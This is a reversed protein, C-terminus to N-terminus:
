STVVRIASTGLYSIVEQHESYFAPLPACHGLTLVKRVMADNRVVSKCRAIIDGISETTSGALYLVAAMEVEEVSPCEGVIYSCAIVAHDIINFSKIGTAPLKLRNLFDEGKDRHLFNDHPDDGGAGSGAFLWVVPKGHTENWTMPGLLKQLPWPVERYSDIEDLFSIVHTKKGLEIDVDKIFDQLQSENLDSLTRHFYKIEINHISAFDGALYKGLEDCYHTKGSRSPAWLLYNNKSKWQKRDIFITKIDDALLNLSRRTAADYRVYSGIIRYDDLVIKEAHKFFAILTEEESKGAEDSEAGTLLVAPLQAELLPPEFTFEEIDDNAYRKVGLRSFMRDQRFIDEVANAWHQALFRWNETRGALAYRRTEGSDDEAVFPYMMPRFITVSDENLISNGETYFVLVNEANKDHTLFTNIFGTFVKSESHADCVEEMTAFMFKNIDSDLLDRFRYKYSPENRFQMLRDASLVIRISDIQENDRIFGEYLASFYERDRHFALDSNFIWIQGTHKGFVYDLM